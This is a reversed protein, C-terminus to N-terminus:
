VMLHHLLQYWNSKVSHVQLTHIESNGFPSLNDVIIGSAYFINYQFFDVGGDASNSFEVSSQRCSYKKSGGIPEVESQAPQEYFQTETIVSSSTRLENALPVTTTCGFFHLM